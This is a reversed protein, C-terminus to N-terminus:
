DNKFNSRYKELVKMVSDLTRGPMNLAALDDCMNSWNSDDGVLSLTISYVDERNILDLSCGTEDDISSDDDDIINWFKAMTSDYYNWIEYISGPEDILEKAFKRLAPDNTTFSFSAGDTMFPEDYEDDMNAIQMIKDDEGCQRIIGFIDDILKKGDCANITVSVKSM